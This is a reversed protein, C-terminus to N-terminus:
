GLRGKRYDKGIMRIGRCMEIIRSEIAPGNNEYRDRVEKLSINSTIILPMNHEYRTNIIEYLTQEVWETPKEKGLDDIVLLSVSTLQDIIEREDFESNKAYTERIRGLLTTVTGFIVSQGSEILRLTIAAALHTKGTGVTGSLLLGQGQSKKQKFNEAYDLASGYAEKNESTTIYNDFTRDGFRAPLKSTKFLREVKDIRKQESAQVVEKEKAQREEEDVRAWHEQSKSCGCRSYSLWRFVKTNDFPNMLPRHRLEMGCFMCPVATPEEPENWLLQTSNTKTTMM